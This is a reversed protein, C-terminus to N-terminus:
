KDTHFIFTCILDRAYNSSFLKIVMLKEDVQEKMSKM